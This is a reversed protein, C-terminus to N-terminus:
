AAPLPIIWVVVELGGMGDPCMGGRRRDSYAVPGPEDTAVQTTPWAEEGSVAAVRADGVQTDTLRRAM